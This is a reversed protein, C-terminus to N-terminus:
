TPVGVVVFVWREGVPMGVDGVEMVAVLVSRARAARRDWVCVLGARPDLDRTM